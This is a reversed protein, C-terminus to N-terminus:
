NPGRPVDARQHAFGLLDGRFLTLWSKRRILVRPDRVCERVGPDRVGPDPRANYCTGRAFEPTLDRTTAPRANYRAERQLMGAAGQSEGPHGTISALLAADAAQRTFAPTMHNM